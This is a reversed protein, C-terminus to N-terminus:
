PARGFRKLWGLRLRQALAKLEEGLTRPHLRYARSFGAAPSAEGDLRVRVRLERREGSAFRFTAQRYGGLRALLSHRRLHKRVLPAIFEAYAGAANLKDEARVPHSPKCAGEITVEALPHLQCSWAVQPHRVMIDPACSIRFGLGVAERCFGVLLGDPYGAPLRAGRRLIETPFLLCSGVSSLDILGGTVPLSLLQKDFRIRVGDKTRFGWTDYFRGECHVRPAVIDGGAVILRDILDPDFDLDAEVWLTRDSPHSLSAELALNAARAWGVSRECMTEVVAVPGGETVFRIRADARAARLLVPDTVESGDVVVTLTGLRCHKQELSCARSLFADAYGSGQRMAACLNVVPTDISAPM